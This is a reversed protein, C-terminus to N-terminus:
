EPEWQMLLDVIAHFETPGHGIPCGPEYSDFTASWDFRDTPGPKM